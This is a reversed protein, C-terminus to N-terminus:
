YVRPKEGNFEVKPEAISADMKVFFMFSNDEDTKACEESSCVFEVKYYWKDKGMKSLEVNNLYWKEKTEPFLLDMKKRAVEVAKRVSIPVDETNPNWSPLDQLEKEEIRSSYKYGNVFKTVSNSEDQGYISSATFLVIGISLIIISFRM